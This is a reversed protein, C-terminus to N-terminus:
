HVLTDVAVALAGVVISILVAWWLRNVLTRKLARLDSTGARLAKVLEAEYVTRALMAMHKVHLSEYLPWMPSRLFAQVQPDSALRPDTLAERIDRQEADFLTEQRYGRLNIHSANRVDPPFNHVHVRDRRSRRAVAMMLCDGMLSMFYDPPAESMPGLNSFIVRTSLRFRLDRRLRHPNASRTTLFIKQRM